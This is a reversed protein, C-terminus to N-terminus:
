EDIRTIDHIWKGSHLRYLGIPSKIIYEIMLCLCFVENPVKLVLGLLCMMPLTGCWLPVNDIFLSANVDGGGRLVGVVMTTSFSHLPIACAYCMLMVSCLREAVASLSFLPMVFPRMLTVFMTYEALGLM